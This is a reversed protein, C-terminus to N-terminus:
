AAAMKSAVFNDACQKIFDLAEQKLDPLRRDSYGAFVVWAEVSLVDWYYPDYETYRKGRPFHGSKIMSDLTNCSVSLAEAVEKKKLRIKM